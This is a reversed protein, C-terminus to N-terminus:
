ISKNNWGSKKSQKDSNNPRHQTAARFLRGCKLKINKIGAAKRINVTNM